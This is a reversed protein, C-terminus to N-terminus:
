TLLHIFNRPIKHFLPIGRELLLTQIKSTFANIKDTIVQQVHEHLIKLGRSAEM